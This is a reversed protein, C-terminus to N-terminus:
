ENGWQGRGYADGRARAEVVAEDESIAFVTVNVGANAPGNTFVSEEWQEKGMFPIPKVPECAILADCGGDDGRTFNVVYLIRDDSM